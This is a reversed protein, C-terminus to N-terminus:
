QFLKKMSVFQSYSSLKFFLHRNSDCLFLPKLLLNIVYIYDMQNCDKYEDKKIAFSQHSEVSVM